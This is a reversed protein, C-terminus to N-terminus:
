GHFTAQCISDDSETTNTVSRGSAIRLSGENTKSEDLKQDDNRDDGDEGAQQQGGERFGFVLCRMSALLSKIFFTAKSNM